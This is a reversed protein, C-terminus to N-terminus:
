NAKLRKLFEAESIVEVGLSEAKALKSGASAGALVFATNKSVSSAAKGGASIIAEEAQDRTLSELTGTVVISMGSFVGSGGVSVEQTFNVGAKKWAAVIEKHWDVAIWEKITKAVVQGVGDVGALQEESADFIKEISGFINMLSRAAVPGVHRISLSVLVRWAPQSKAKELEELLKTAVAAASGDAKRFYEVIKEEGKADLKAAGTDADVVRSKIPLLKELTLTFLDAESKVPPDKPEVPQTLAVATVFGLAEIDLASRSGIYTIRERLQAPCSKANPCRLDVDGDQAPALLSQCEPCKKPMAFKKESGDRLAVVPGLIEPIVDGAKRLVVTDGILIGKAAVVEQNHLTAFEIESGAVRIPYLVAYPTARGTRGISVKIDM